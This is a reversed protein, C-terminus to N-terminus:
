SQRPRELEFHTNAVIEDRLGAYLNRVARGLRKVEDENVPEHRYAYDNRRTVLPYALLADAVLEPHRQRCYAVVIRAGIEHAGASAPKNEISRKFVLAIANGVQMLAYELSLIATTPRPGQITHSASELHALVAGLCEGKRAVDGSALVGQELLGRLEPGPYFAQENAQTEPM